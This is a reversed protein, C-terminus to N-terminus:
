GEHHTAWWWDEVSSSVEVPGELHAGGCDDPISGSVGSLLIIDIWLNDLFICLREEIVELFPLDFLLLKLGLVLLCLEGLDSAM